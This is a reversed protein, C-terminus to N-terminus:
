STGFGPNKELFTPLDIFECNLALTLNLNAKKAGANGKLTYTGADRPSVDRITLTVQNTNPNTIMAYKPNTHRSKNNPTIDDGELSCDCRM